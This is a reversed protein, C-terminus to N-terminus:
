NSKLRFYKQPVAAANTYPSVAGSVNTYSGAAAPGTKLSFLSAPDSWWLVVNTGAMAISLAIRDLGSAYYLNTIETGTLARHSRGRWDHGIGPSRRTQIRTSPPVTARFGTTEYSDSKAMHSIRRLSVRLSHLWM